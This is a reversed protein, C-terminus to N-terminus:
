RFDQVAWVKGNSLVAFGCAVRTYGPNSMNIYHGHTGFDSGPGENWMAQLCTGIMANPPGPWGPCENQAYEGCRGFASHPTQTQADSFGQDEACAESTTWRQLPARGISARYANITDVCLQEVDNPNGTPVPTPTRTAVPTATRTPTPVPTPLGACGTAGKPDLACLTQAAFADAGAALAAGDNAVSCSGRGAARGLCADLRTRQRALCAADVTGTSSAARALCAHTAAVYRGMCTLKTADCRNASATKVVAATVSTTYGVIRSATAGQDGVTLCALGRERRAFRGSAADGGGDFRDDVRARCAALMTADPEAADRAACALHAATSRGVDSLKGALCANVTVAHVLAPSLAATILVVASAAMKGRM